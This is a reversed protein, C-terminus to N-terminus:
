CKAARCACRRTSASRSPFDHLYGTAKAVRLIRDLSRGAVCVKRGTETAVRGITQLRAANSAFTTVLVRGKAKSSRACCARTSARRRARRSRGPLRQHFRVGARARGRRRDRDAGRPEVARRAGADRRDELRRHPLHQRVANRDAPWQGRPDLAVARRYRSRSRGSSSRERRARRHQAQGARDAGGGRAQRRDARRHVADRLAAGETPPSIPCRASITRM